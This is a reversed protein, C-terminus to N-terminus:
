CRHNFARCREEEEEEEEEGEEGDGYSQRWINNIPFVFGYATDSHSLNKSRPNAFSFRDPQHRQQAGLAALSAAGPRSPKKIAQHRRFIAARRFGFRHDERELGILGGNDVNGSAKVTAAHCLLRVAYLSLSAKKKLNKKVEPAL